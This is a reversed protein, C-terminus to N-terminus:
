PGLTLRRELLAEAQTQAHSEAAGRAADRDRDAVAALIEAHARAHAAADPGGEPQLWVLASLEGQFRAEEGTLRTSHSGVGLDVHFRADARRREADSGAEELRALDTRLRSIEAAGAREAALAAIAVAIAAQHDLLDRLEDLSRTRPAVESVHGHPPAQVFSGGGRGRRTVLLGRERLSALADRLTMASVGLQEALEGEPPLRTGVPLLGLDISEELQRAVEATRSQDTLPALFSLSSPAEAPAKPTRSM